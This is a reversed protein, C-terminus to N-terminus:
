SWLLSQMNREQEFMQQSVIMCNKDKEVTDTLNRQMDKADEMQSELERMAEAWSLADKAKNEQEEKATQRDIEEQWAEAYREICKQHLSRKTILLTMNLIVLEVLLEM